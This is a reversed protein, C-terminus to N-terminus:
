APEVPQRLRVTIDLRSGLNIIIFSLIASDNGDLRYKEISANSTQCLDAQKLPLM